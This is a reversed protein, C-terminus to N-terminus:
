RRQRGCSQHRAMCIEPVASVIASAAATKSQGAFKIAVTEGPDAHGWIRVRQNQQLVMGDSIVDPLSINARAATAFATLAIFTLLIRSTKKM